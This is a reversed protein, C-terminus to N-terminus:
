DENKTYPVFDGFACSGMEIRSASDILKIIEGKCLSSTPRSYSLISNAANRCGGYPKNVYITKANRRSGFILIDDSIVTMNRQDNMSICSQPEGATRGELRKDLKAQQQESLEIAEGSVAPAALLIAIPLAFILKKM